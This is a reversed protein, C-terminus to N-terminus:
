GAQFWYVQVATLSAAAGNVIKLRIFPAPVAAMAVATGGGGTLQSLVRANIQTTAGGTFTFTGTMTLDWWNSGDFSAQFTCTVTGSTGGTAIVSCTISGGQLSPKFTTSYDTAGNAITGSTVPASPGQYKAM